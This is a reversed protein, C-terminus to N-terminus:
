MASAAMSTSASKQDAVLSYFCLAARNASIFPLFYKKKAFIL